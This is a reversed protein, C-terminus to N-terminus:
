DSRGRYYTDINDENGDVILKTGAAYMQFLRHEFNFSPGIFLAKKPDLDGIKLSYVHGIDTTAIQYKCSYKSKDEERDLFIHHYGAVNGGGEVILTIRESSDDCSCGYRESEYKVFDSVLESLKIEAPAPALLAALQKEVHKAISDEALQSVQNRITKLIFDNYGPLGLNSFDIQMANKVHEGLAQGFQSYSRLHENIISAVTKTLNEEIAKEIVGSAVINAFANGVAQQLQEM